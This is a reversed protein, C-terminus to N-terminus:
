LLGGLSVGLMMADFASGVAYGGALGVVLCIVKMGTVLKIASPSYIGAKALRKRMESVKARTEPMFPKAAVNGLREFLDSARRGRNAGVGADMRRNVLRERLRNDGRGMMVRAVWFGLVSVAGSVCVLFIVQEVIM